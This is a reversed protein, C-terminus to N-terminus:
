RGILDLSTLLSSFANPEVSISGRYPYDLAMVLFIVLGIVLSLGGIMLQQMVTRDFGFLYTYAVTVYAGVILVIWMIPNIGIFDITLREQRDALATDISVLMQAAINQLRPSTVPLARIDRDAAELLTNSIASDQGRNMKPWEDTIVSRLYARVTARLRGSNPFSESDRYVNALAGAEEFTREEAVQFREWVGIAVFALLVAYVVGIVALIFGARDTHAARIEQSTVKSVIYGLVLTSVVFGGVVFIGAIATPLSEFWAIM